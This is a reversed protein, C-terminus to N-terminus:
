PPPPPRVIALIKAMAAKVSSMSVTLFCVIQPHFEDESHRHHFPLAWILFFCSLHTLSVSFWKSCLPLKTCLFIYLFYFKCQSGHTHYVQLGPQESSEASLPPRWGATRTKKPPSSMSCCSAAPAFSGEVMVLPPAAPPFPHLLPRPAWAQGVLVNAGLGDFL